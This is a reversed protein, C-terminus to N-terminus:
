KSSEGFARIDAVIKDLRLAHSSKVLVLDGHQVLTQVPGKAEEADTFELINKRPLGASRAGDAVFEANRGIAVIIDAAKAAARGLKLHEEKAYRGIELMDGLIAVKRKAPLDKMTELASRMSLPGANYSDDIIWTGKVGPVLEMRHPAPRYYAQLAESVNVLNLGFVLGVAAAAASAYANSKGFAGTLRVPVAAGAHELKFAAGVPMEGEARNEFGSIRVSADKAFGFTLLQGRARPRLSMIMEDDANLVAFGTSPVAEMLRSKERAVEEPSRFFEVHAPTEGIATLVAVNPRAISLLFRMDGPRDVGYELVLVEPYRTKWFLAAASRFIVKLFFLAKRFFHKGAPTDRSILRLDEAPWDGLIALPLGIEGNFNGRSARVQRNGSLVAAIALKTSTKGVSGTVGVIAPRYRLVTLQALRRLIKQIATQLM